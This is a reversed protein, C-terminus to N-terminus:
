TQKNATQNNPVSNDIGIIKPMNTNIFNTDKEDNLIITLGSTGYPNNTAPVNATPTINARRKM